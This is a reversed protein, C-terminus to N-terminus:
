DLDEQEVRNGGRDREREGGTSSYPRRERDYLYDDFGEPMMSGEVIPSRATSPEEPNSFTSSYSESRPFGGPM